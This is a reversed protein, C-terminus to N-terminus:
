DERTGLREWSWWESYICAAAGVPQDNYMVDYKLRGEQIAKRECESHFFGGVVTGSMVTAPEGCYACRSVAKPKDDEYQATLYDQMTEM